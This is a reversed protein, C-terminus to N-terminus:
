RDVKPVLARWREIRCTAGVRNRIVDRRACVQHPEEPQIYFGGYFDLAPCDNDLRARMRQRNRLVFDITDPGSLMAGAIARAPLCKPGKEEEWRIRLAPRPSVPVRITVQREITMIRVPPAPADPAQGAGFLAPLLSILSALIM